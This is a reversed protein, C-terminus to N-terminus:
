PTAMFHGGVLRPGHPQLLFYSVARMPLTVPGKPTELVLGVHYLAAGAAQDASMRLIRGAGPMPDVHIRGAELLERQRRQTLLLAEDSQAYEGASGLGFTDGRLPPQIGVDTPRARKEDIWAIIVDNAPKFSDEFGGIAPMGETQAKSIMTQDDEPRDWTQAVVRWPPPGSLLTSVTWGQGNAGFRDVAWRVTSLDEGGVTRVTARELSFGGEFMRQFRSAAVRRAEDDLGVEDVDPGSFLTEKAFLGTAAAIDGAAIAALQGDLVETVSPHALDRRMDSSPTTIHTAHPAGCASMLGIGIVAIGTWRM